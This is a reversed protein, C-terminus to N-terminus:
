AFLRFVGDRLRACFRGIATSPVLRALVPPGILVLLGISCLEQLLHNMHSVEDSAASPVKLM